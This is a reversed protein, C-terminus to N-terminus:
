PGDRRTRDRQDCRRCRDLALLDAAAGRLEIGATATGDDLRFGTPAVTRDRAWRRPGHPRHDHRSRDFDADPAGSRVRTRASSAGGSAGTPGSRGSPSPGAPARPRRRRLRAAPAAVRVDSRRAAPRAFRRDTATPYPRRVIGIVTADRGEISPRDGPHRAPSASSVVTAHGSASSAAGDIASSASRTSAAASRSSGGSTRRPRARAPGATGASRDDGPPRRADGRHAARRVGARRQGRRARTRRDGPARCRGQAPPGRHAGSADQVVIRRGPSDLLTAPATVVAVIAVVPRDTITARGPSPWSPSRRRRRRPRSPTVAVAEADQDAEADAARRRLRAPWRCTVDAVDRSGSAIATSRAPTRPGSDASRRHDPVHRRGRVHDRHDGSSADAVVKVPRRGRSARPRAHRRRGLGEDAAEAVIGPSRWSGARPRGRRPREARVVAAPAADLGARRDVLGAQTRGSRSSATRRRSSATSRSWSAALRPM